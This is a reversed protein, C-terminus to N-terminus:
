TGGEASLGGCENAEIEVPGADFAVSQVDPEGVLDGPGQVLGSAGADDPAAIGATPSLVLETEDLRAARQVGQGDGDERAFAIDMLDVM